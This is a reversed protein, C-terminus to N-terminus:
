RQTSSRTPLKVKSLRGRRRRVKQAKKHPIPNAAEGAKQDVQYDKGGAVQYM